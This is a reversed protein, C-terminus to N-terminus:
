GPRTKDHAPLDDALKLWPLRDECWTHDRPPCAEPADLSAITLDIEHARADHEYSVSTGCVACFGRTVDASSRYLQLSGSLVRLATRSVTFWAVAPAGAARRCSRCHCLTQDRLEGAVEYRYQGCFCGGKPM